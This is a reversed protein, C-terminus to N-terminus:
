NLLDLFDQDEIYGEFDKDDMFQRSTKGLELSKEIYALMNPKDHFVAFGCALNYALLPETVKEPIFTKLWNFADRDATKVAAVVPVQLVDIVTKNDILPLFSRCIKKIAEWEARQAHSTMLLLDFKFDTKELSVPGKIVAAIEELREFAEPLPEKEFNRYKKLRNFIGRM